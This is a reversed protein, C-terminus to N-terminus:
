AYQPVITGYMGSSNGQQFFPLMANMYDAYAINQPSIGFAINQMYPGPDFRYSDPAFRLANRTEEEQAMYDPTQDGLLAQTGVTTLAAGPIGYINDVTQQKVRGWGSLEPNEPIEPTLGQITEKFSEALTNYASQADKIVTDPSLISTNLNTTGDVSTPSDLSKFIENWTNRGADNLRVDGLEGINDSAYSYMTATKDISSAGM